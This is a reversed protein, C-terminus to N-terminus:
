EKATYRLYIVEFDDPLHDICYEIQTNLERMAEDYRKQSKLTMDTNFLSEVMKGERTYKDPNFRIIWLPRDGLADNIINMRRMEDELSNSSHSFEDIEIILDHSKLQVYFDPRRFCRNGIQKITRDNLVRRGQLSNSM